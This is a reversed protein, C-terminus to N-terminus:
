AVLVLFQTPVGSCVYTQGEFIFKGSFGALEHKKEIILALLIYYNKREEYIM